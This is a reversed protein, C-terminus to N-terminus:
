LMDIYENFLLLLLITRWENILIKTTQKEYDQCLGLTFDYTWLFDDLLNGIM